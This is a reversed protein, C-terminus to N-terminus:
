VIGAKEGPVDHPPAFKFKDKLQSCFSGGEVTKADHLKAEELSLSFPQALMGLLTTKQTGNQGAIAIVDHDTGIDLDHFARFKDIRVHKIVHM